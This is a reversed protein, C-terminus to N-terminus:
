LMVHLTARVGLFNSHKAMEHQHLLQLSQNNFEQKRKAKEGSLQMLERGHGAPDLKHYNDLTACDLAVKMHKMENQAQM